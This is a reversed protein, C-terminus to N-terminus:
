PLRRERQQEVSAVYANVELLWRSGHLDIMDVLFRKVTTIERRGFPVVWGDSRMANGIRKIRRWSIHAVADLHPCQNQNMDNNM